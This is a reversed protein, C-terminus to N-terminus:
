GRWPERRQRAARALRRGGASRRGGARLEALHCVRVHSRPPPRARPFFGRRCSQKGYVWRACVGHCHHPLARRPRALRPRRGGAPGALDGRRPDDRGAIPGGGADWVSLVGGSDDLVRATACGRAGRRGGLRSAAIPYGTMDPGGEATLRLDSPWPFDFFTSSTNNAANLEFRVRPTPMPGADPVGADDLGPGDCAVLLLLVLLPRCSM